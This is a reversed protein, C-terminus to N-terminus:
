HHYSRYPKRIISLSMTPDVRGAPQTPRMIRTEENKQYYEVSGRLMHHTQIDYALTTSKHNEYAVFQIYNM